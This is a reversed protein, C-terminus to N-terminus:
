FQLVRALPAHCSGAPESRGMSVQFVTSGAAYFSNLEEESKALFISWFEQVAKRVDEATLSKTAVAMLQEWSFHTREHQDLAVDIPKAGITIKPQNSNRALGVPCTCIVSLFAYFRICHRAARRIEEAPSDQLAGTGLLM